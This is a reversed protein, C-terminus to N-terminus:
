HLSSRTEGIASFNGPCNYFAGYLRPTNTGNGGIMLRLAPDNWSHYIYPSCTRQNDESPSIVDTAYFMGPIRYRRTSLQGIWEGNAGLLFVPQGTEGYNAIDQHYIQITPSSLGPHTFINDDRFLM